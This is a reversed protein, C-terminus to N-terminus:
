SRVRKIPPPSDDAWFMLWKSYLVMRRKIPCTEQLDEFDSGDFVEKSVQITSPHTEGCATCRFYIM